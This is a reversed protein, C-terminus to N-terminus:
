PTTRENMTLRVMVGVTSIPRVCRGACGHMGAGHGSPRGSGVIGAHRERRSGRGQAISRAVPFTTRVAADNSQECRNSKDAEMTADVEMLPIAEDEAEQFANVGVILKRRADIERQYAFAADAIERRFFGTEIAAIM